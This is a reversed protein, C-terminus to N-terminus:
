LARQRESKTSRDVTRRPAQQREVLQAATPSPVSACAVTSPVHSARGNDANDIEACPMRPAHEYTCRYDRSSGGIMRGHVKRDGRIQVIQQRAAQRPALAVYLVLLYKGIARDYRDDARRCGFQRLPSRVPEGRPERLAM